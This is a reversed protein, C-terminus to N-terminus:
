SQPTSPKRRRRGPAKTEPPLLCQQRKVLDLLEDVKRELNDKAATERTKPESTSRDGIHFEIGLAKCIEGVRNLGPMRGRLVNRIAYPPLGGERTVRHHTKGKERQLYDLRERVLEQFEELLMHGNVVVMQISECARRHM